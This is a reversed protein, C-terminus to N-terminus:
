EPLAETQGSPLEALMRAVTKQLKENIYWPCLEALPELVFRRNSMDPHPVSLKEDASVFDEYFLIDLDLTRPGWHVLRERHAERELQQLYELLEYPSLLTMLEVAGNLFDEQTVGGYPKTVILSSCRVERIKEHAKLKEVAERIYREKDGMNSGIGLYARKWGRTISVAVNGFPLGIPAHPKNLVLHISRILPFELLVAEAMAEAAAEILDYTKETFFRNMFHCVEGYHVSQTLDDTRGAKKLELYLEADVYFLQGKEKEEPFVGHYGYLELHEIRISDM